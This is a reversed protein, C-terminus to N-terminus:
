IFPVVMRRRRGVARAKASLRPTPAAMGGVALWACTDPRHRQSVGSSQLAGKLEDLSIKAIAEPEFIWRKNSFLDASNSWLRGADRARDLATTFTCFLRIDLDSAGSERLRKAGLVEPLAGWGSGKPVNRNPSVFAGTVFATTIQRALDSPPSVSSEIQREM